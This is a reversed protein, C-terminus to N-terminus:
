DPDRFDKGEWYVYSAGAAAGVRLQLVEALLLNLHTRPTNEVAVIDGPRLAVSPAGVVSTGTLRFTADVVQGSADRRYVRVFRPDAVADVGGAMALADMLTYRAGAPYPYAGPRHVLGVVTFVAPDLPEVEVRAGAKLAVDAFPINLGRVPLVVVRAAQETDTTVRPDGVGNPEGVDARGGQIRIVAAGDEVIGGAEMLLSVLTMRDHRLGYVGPRAVAGVISVGFTRPEAVRVVISPREKLVGPWYAAAIRGELQSVTLGAAEVAGILPMSITGDEQVRAPHVVSTSTVVRGATGGAALVAPIQIELLDGAILRYPGRVTEAEVIRDVDTRVTLPGAQAFRALEEPGSVTLGDGCGGLLFVLVGLALVPGSGAGGATRRGRRGTRHGRRGRGLGEPLSGRMVFAMRIGSDAVRNM